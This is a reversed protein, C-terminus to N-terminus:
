RAVHDLVPLTRFAAAALNQSRMPTSPDILKQLEEPDKGVSAGVAFRSKVAKCPLYRM